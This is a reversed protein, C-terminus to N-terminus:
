WGLVAYAYELNWPLFDYVKGSRYPHHTDSEGGCSPPYRSPCRNTVSRSPPGSRQQLRESRYHPLV